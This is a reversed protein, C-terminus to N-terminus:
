EDLGTPERVLKLDNWDISSGSPTPVVITFPILSLPTSTPKKPVAGDVGPKDGTRCRLASTARRSRSLKLVQWVRANERRYNPVFFDRESVGIEPIRDRIRVLKGANNTRWPSISV